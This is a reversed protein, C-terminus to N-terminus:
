NKTNGNISASPILHMSLWFSLFAQCGAVLFLFYLKRKRGISYDFQHQPQQPMGYSDYSVPGSTPNSHAPDHLVKAKLTRLLFFAMSLSCYILALYYGTKLFLISILLCAVIIVFKYGSYALLDLTKLTTPINAVYLIISYVVLEFINYALASSAQIGLQEPSFRSQMGLLLGAVVVYTIYAMTPIYLDPANIDYRPQVPNDQDYKLSWDKHTFPFFLLRIKNIVYKNDVAFYYKLRTVPVWKEFQNEVLQKGQDALKQGYQIAMDQVVPQQFMAFQPHISDHPLGTNATMTHLQTPIHQTSATSYSPFQGPVASMQQPEQMYPYSQNAGSNYGPVSPQIQPQLPTQTVGEYPSPVFQPAPVSPGMANVDSVRKIKRGSGQPHRAGTNTNFNM